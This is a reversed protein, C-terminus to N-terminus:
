RDHVSMLPAISIVACIPPRHLQICDFMVHVTRLRMARSRRAETTARTDRLDCTDLTDHHTLLIPLQM